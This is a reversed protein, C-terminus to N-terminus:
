FDSLGLLYRWELMARQMDDDNDFYQAIESAAEDNVALTPVDEILSNDLTDESNVSITTKNTDENVTDATVTSTKETPLNKWESLTSSTHAVQKANTNCNLHM